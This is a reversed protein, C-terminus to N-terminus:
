KWIRKGKGNLASAFCLYYVPVLIDFLVIYPFVGLNGIKNLYKAFVMELLFTRIIFIFIIWYNWHSTLIFILLGFYFFTHSLSLLGLLVKHKLKYHNSSSFHRTKQKYLSKWSTPADSYMFSDPDLCITTNKGTAVENVFLDDDGSLLHEHRRFGGHQHFLKKQYMLNRGVGMYPQKWLAFSFYQIAVYITEFRVWRNVWTSATNYPGYGLVISKKTNVLTTAMTKIWQNSTASCDADTLLLVDHQAAQIGRALAGKKGATAKKNITLITLHPYKEQFNALTAATKDTSDDDVVLVEFIPYEQKLISDLNKQLNATENRACIIVSVAPLPLTTSAKPLKYWAIRQFIIGWYALQVLSMLLWLVILIAM